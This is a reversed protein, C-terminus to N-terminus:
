EASRLRRNQVLAAAAAYTTEQIKDNLHLGSHNKSNDDEIQPSGSARVWRLWIPLHISSAHFSWCLRSTNQHYKMGQPVKCPQITRISPLNVQPRLILLCRFNQFSPERENPTTTNQLRTWTVVEWRQDHFYFEIQDRALSQDELPARIGM